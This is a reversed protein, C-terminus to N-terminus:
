TTTEETTVEFEPISANATELPKVQKSKVKKPKPISDLIDGLINPAQNVTVNVQVNAAANRPAYTEPKYAMLLMRRDNHGKYGETIAVELSVAEVRDAAAMKVSHVASRFKEDRNMLQEVASRTVGVALASATLDFTKAYEQIFKVRKARTLKASRKLPRGVDLNLTREVLQTSM